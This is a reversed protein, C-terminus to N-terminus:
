NHTRVLSYAREEALERIKAEVVPNTPGAYTIVKRDPTEGPEITVAVGARDSLEQTSLASQGKFTLQRGM